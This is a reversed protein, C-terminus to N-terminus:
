CLDDLDDNAVKPPVLQPLEGPNWPNLTYSDKELVGIMHRALSVPIRLDLGEYLNGYLDGYPVLNSLALQFLRGAPLLRRGHKPHHPHSDQLKLHVFAGALQILGKYFAYDPAGRGEKLWLHELVDHAEYYRGSNFCEFYGLYCPDFTTGEGENALKGRALEEVFLDMRDSKKM